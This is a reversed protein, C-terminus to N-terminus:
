PKEITITLKCDVASKAGFNTVDLTWYREGLKEIDRRSIITTINLTEARRADQRTSHTLGEDQGMFMLMVSDSGAHELKASFRKPETFHFYFMKTFPQDTSGGTALKFEYTGPKTVERRAASYTELKREHLALCTARILDAYPATWWTAPVSIGILVCNGQRVIPAYNADTTWRAIADVASSNEGRRPLFMAFLDPKDANPEAEAAKELVLVPDAKQSEGLLASKGITVSPPGAVGHACEGDNIELGLQGFLQAAGYGIGVIKRRKLAELTRKELKPRERKPLVLVLVNAASAVAKEITDAKELRTVKGKGRLVGFLSSGFDADKASAYVVFDPGASKREDAANAASTASLGLLIVIASAVFAVPRM